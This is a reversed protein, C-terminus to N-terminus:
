FDVRKWKRYWHLCYAVWAESFSAGEKEIEEMLQKGSAWKKRRLLVENLTRQRWEGPEDIYYNESVLVHIPNSLFDSGPLIYEHISQLYHKVFVHVDTDLTSHNLKM